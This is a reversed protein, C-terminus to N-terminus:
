QMRNPACATDTGAQKALSISFLCSVVDVESVHPARYRRICLSVLKPFAAAIYALLREEGDDQHYEVELRELEPVSCAGLIRLMETSTVIPWHWRIGYKHVQWVHTSLHPFYQLTLSRLTRPLKAFIEDSARPFSVTLHKLDPWPWASRHGPPWIPQPAISGPLALRLELHRLAPMDKLTCVSPTYLGKPSVPEGRLRLERLRPWSLDSLLHLPASEFSITLVELTLHLREILRHLVQTESDYARPFPRYDDLSYEFSTLKALSPLSNDTLALPRPSIIYGACKFHQLNPLTLLADLVGWPIGHVASAPLRLSVTHLLPVDTLAAHLVAGDLIGCLLPDDTYRLENHFGRSYVGPRGSRLDAAYVDPCNDIITLSRVYPRLGEPVCLSTVPVVANMVSDRFLFPMCRKRIGKCTM